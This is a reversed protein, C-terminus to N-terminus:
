RCADTEMQIARVLPVALSPKWSLLRIATSTLAPRRLGLSIWRCLNQRRQIRRRHLAAWRASLDPNWARVGQEILPVVAAASALAWGIGEGTFPEVYGAADGIRFLREQALSASRQNLPPTGAWDAESLEGPLPFGAEKLLLEVAQAPSGAARLFGAEVAAAIDLSGNELRVLGAYGRRGCAMYITGPEYFRNSSDLVTGLGIRSAPGAAVGSLGTAAVITKARLGYEKSGCTLFVLRAEGEASRVTARTHPLFRAGATEAEQVLAADFASRSLVVGGQLPLVAERGNSGLRINRLPVGGLRRPLDGLGAEELISLAAPNICSGCVKRRPFGSKDVLLVKLGKRAAERATLSGAPGAGIVLLDWATGRPDDM